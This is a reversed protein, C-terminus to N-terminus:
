FVLMPNFADKIHEITPETGTRGVVTIIDFRTDAHVTNRKLYANAALGLNRIKTRDIAQEPRMIDETSRTKVEVFVLETADATLAIIDIDRHGCHWDRECIVYGREHLYKEAIDEGWKGAENHEAM